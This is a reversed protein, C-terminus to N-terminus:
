NWEQKTHIPDALVFLDESELQRIFAIADFVEQPNEHLLTIRGAVRGIKAGPTTEVATEHWAPLAEIKEIHRTEHLIGHQKPLLFVLAGKKKAQYAIPPFAEFRTPDSYAMVALDLPSYDACLTCLPSAMGGVLRPAAEIFFARANLVMWEMHCPGFAIGLADVAKLTEELLQPYELEDPALFEMANYGAMEGSPKHYKWLAVIHHKGNWSVTDVAYEAGDIFEQVLLENNTRNLKNTQGINQQFSALVADASHCISVGDNGTSETPKAILPWNTQQELWTVLETKDSSCLQAPIAVGAEQVLLCMFYKNRRAASHKFDNSPLYLAQNLADALNIGTECDALVFRVDNQRLQAVTAALNEHLIHEVYHESDYAFGRSGEGFAEASQIEICAYDLASFRQGLLGPCYPDVIAIYTKNTM